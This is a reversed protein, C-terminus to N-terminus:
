GLAHDRRFFSTALGFGQSPVEDIRDELVMNLHFVVGGNDPFVVFIGIHKRRGIRGFPHAYSSSVTSPPPSTVLSSSCSGNVDDFNLCELRRRREINSSSWSELCWGYLVRVPRLRRCPEFVVPSGCVDGEVGDVVVAVFYWRPIDLDVHIVVVRIDYTAHEYPAILIGRLSERLAQGHHEGHM